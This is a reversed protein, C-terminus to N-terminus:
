TERASNGKMEAGKLGHPNWGGCPNREGKTHVRPLCVVNDDMHKGGGVFLLLPTAALYKRSIVTAM